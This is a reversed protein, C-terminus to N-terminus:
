DILHHRKGLQIKWSIFLVTTTLAFLISAAFAIYFIFRYPSEKFMFILVMAAAALGFFIIIFPLAVNTLATLHSNDPYVKDKLLRGKKENENLKYKIYRNYPNLREDLQSILIQKPSIIKEVKYRLGDATAVVGNFKKNLDKLSTEVVKLLHTVREEEMKAACRQLCELVLNKLNIIEYLRKFYLEVCDSNYFRDKITIKKHLRKVYEDLAANIRSLFKLYSFQDKIKNFYKDSEGDLLLSADAFYTKRLKSMYVLSLIRGFRARYSNPDIEIIRGFACYAEYFKTERYLLREAKNIKTAIFYNYNEIAEKPKLESMCIPCYCVEADPNVSFIRDLENDTKHIPCYAKKLSSVEKAM